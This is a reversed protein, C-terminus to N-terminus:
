KQSREKIEELCLTKKWKRYLRALMQEENRISQITPSSVDTQKFHRKMDALMQRHDEFQKETSYNKIQDPYM